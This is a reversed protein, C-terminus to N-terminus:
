WECKVLFFRRNGFRGDSGKGLRRRAMKITIRRPLPRSFFAAFLTPFDGDAPSIDEYATQWFSKYAFVDIRWGRFANSVSDERPFVFQPWLLECFQYLHVTIYLSPTHMPRKPSPFNSVKADPPQQRDTACKENNNINHALFTDQTVNFLHKNPAFQILRKRSICFLEFTFLTVILHSNKISNQITHKNLCSSLTWLLNMHFINSIM